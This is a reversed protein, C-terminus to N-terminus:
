YIQLGGAKLLSRDDLQGFDFTRVLQPRVLGITM